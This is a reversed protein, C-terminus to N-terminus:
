ENITRVIKYAKSEVDSVPVYDVIDEVITDIGRNGYRIDEEYDFYQVKYCPRPTSNKPSVYEVGLIEGNLGSGNNYANISISKLFAKNMNM